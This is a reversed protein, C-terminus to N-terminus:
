SLKNEGWDFPLNDARASGCRYLITTLGLETSHAGAPGSSTAALESLITESSSRIMRGTKAQQRQQITELVADECFEIADCCNEFVRCLGVPGPGDDGDGEEEGAEAVVGHGRLLRVMGPSVAQSSFRKLHSFGSMLFANSSFRTLHSASLSPPVVRSLATAPLVALVLTVGRPKLLQALNLFCARAATADIGTVASCDLVVYRVRVKEEAAPTELDPDAPPTELRKKGNGSPPPASSLDLRQEIANIIGVVSGFFIHGHLEVTLLEGRRGALLQRATYDRAVRSTKDSNFRVKQVSAYSAAFQMITLMLGILMGVVLSTLNIAIFTGWVIAFEYPTLKVYSHILWDSMLDFAIFSLVAGFFFHPLYASVSWPLVFVVAEVVIIVLGAFRETSRGVTAAAAQVEGAPASGTGHLAPLDAEESTGAAAKLGQRLNFITLSFIYSGTYGGLLGSICNSTGVVKDICLICLPHMLSAYPICLICLPQVLTICWPQMLPGHRVPRLVYYIHM